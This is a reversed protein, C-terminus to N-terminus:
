VIQTQDWHITYQICKWFIVSYVKIYWFVDSWFIKNSTELITSLRWHIRLSYHIFHSLFFRTMSFWTGIHNHNQVYGKAITVTLDPQKELVVTCIFFIDGGRTGENSDWLVKLLAKRVTSERCKEDSTKSLMVSPWM